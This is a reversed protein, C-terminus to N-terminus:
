RIEKPLVNEIPQLEGKQNVALGMDALSELAGTIGLAQRQLSKQFHIPEEAEFQERTPHPVERWLAILTNVEHLADDVMKQTDRRQSLKQERDVLMRAREYKGLEDGSLKEGMEALDIDERQLNYYAERLANVRDRLRLALARFQRAPTIQSGLVFVRDQYDSNGLPIEQYSQLIEEIPLEAIAREIDTVM